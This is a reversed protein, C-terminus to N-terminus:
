RCNADCCKLRRVAADRHRPAKPRELHQRHLWEAGANGRLGLLVLQAGLEEASPEL